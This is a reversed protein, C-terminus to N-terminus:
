GPKPRPGCCNPGATLSSIVINHVHPHPLGHQSTHHEFSAILWRQPKVPAFQILGNHQLFRLAALNASWAHSWIAEVRKWLQQAHETDAENYAQIAAQFVQAHGSALDAPAEWTLDAAQGQAVLRRLTTEDVETGTALGHEPCALGTWTGTTEDTRSHDLVHALNDHVWSMRIVGTLGMGTIAISTM